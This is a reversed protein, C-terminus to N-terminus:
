IKAKELDAYAKSNPIVTQKIKDFLKINLIQKLDCLETFQQM